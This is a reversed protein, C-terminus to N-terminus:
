GRKFLRRMKLALALDGEVELREEMFLMDASARGALVEFFDDAALRFTVDADAASGPELSLAGDAVRACFSGGGAGCLEFQFAIRLGRAAEGDFRQRLSALAEELRTAAVAARAKPM